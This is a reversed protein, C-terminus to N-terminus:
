RVAKDPAAVMATAPEWAMSPQSPRTLPRRAPRHVVRDLLDDVQAFHDEWTPTRWSGARAIQALRRPSHLRTYEMITARWAAGDLPDLYEPIDGGVERLAPLDSCIAPVRLALAEALPLGYGECFSPFLLGRAGRLLEAVRRDPLQGVEQVVGRLANCRELMDIINENEWGRRGIVLLRPAAPGMNAVFERWLHLLLLHNKRPEITGLTVFYPELPVPSVPSEPLEIGLHAVIMPPPVARQTLYPELASATHASNAIIGDALTATAAIRRLHKEPEGPRAYEPHTAPILDHILPVIATGGRKLAAIAGSRELSRHSALIFVRKPNTALAKRLTLRGLGWFLRHRIVNAIRSARRLASKDEGGGDWAEGLAAVLDSVLRHPVALFAGWHDQAVFTCNDPGSQVWRRAYVWDVRDIGSPTARRTAGILRSVNLIVHM